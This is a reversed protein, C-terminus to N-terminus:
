WSEQERALESLASLMDKTLPTLKEGGSIFRLVDSPKAGAISKALLDSVRLAWSAFRPSLMQFKRVDEANCEDELVFAALHTLGRARLYEAMADAGHPGYLAVQRIGHMVTVVTDKSALAAGAKKAQEIALETAASGIGEVAITIKQM